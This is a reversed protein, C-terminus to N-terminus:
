FVFPPTWKSFINASLTVKKGRCKIQILYICILIIFILKSNWHDEEQNKTGLSREKLYRM